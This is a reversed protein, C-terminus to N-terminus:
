TDLIVATETIKDHIGQRNRDWLIQFFGLLGTALGAWYGGAREFASWWTIPKANLRVVRIGLLRKGPTRGQWIAVTATFYLIFWGLGLGLDDALSRLRGVIGTRESAEELTNVERRLRTREEELSAVRAGLVGLTDAALAVGLAPRLVAAAVTDGASVAAAYASELSDARPASVTSGSELGAVLSDAIAALWPEEASEAVGVLMERIDAPEAGERRMRAVLQEGSRRASGPDDASRFALFEAALGLAEMGSTGADAEGGEDAAAGFRFLGAEVRESASDWGAVGFAFLLIAALGRMAIRVSRHLYGGSAFAAKGSARFLFYAAVAAFLIGPAQALFAVIVGDVAMAAARRWPRALPLGLLTPHM